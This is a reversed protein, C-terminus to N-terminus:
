KYLLLTCINEYVTFYLASVVGAKIQSPWLGKYLAFFGETKVTKHICHFLGSTSFTQFLIQFSDNNSHFFSRYCANYYVSVVFRGLVM